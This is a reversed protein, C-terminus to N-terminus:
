AVKGLMRVVNCKELDAAVLPVIGGTCDRGWAVYGLAAVTADGVGLAFWEEEPAAITGCGGCRRCETIGAFGADPDASRSDYRHNELGGNGDCCPCSVRPIADDCRM